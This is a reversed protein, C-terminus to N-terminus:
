TQENKVGEKIARAASLSAAAQMVNKGIFDYENNLEMLALANFIIDPHVGTKFLTEIFTMKMEFGM